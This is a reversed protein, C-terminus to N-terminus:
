TRPGIVIIHIVFTDGYVIIIIVNIGLAFTIGHSFAAYRKLKALVPNDAKRIHASVLQGVDAAIPLSIDTCYGIIFYGACFGDSQTIHRVYVIHVIACGGSM